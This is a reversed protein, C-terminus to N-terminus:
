AQNRKAIYAELAAIQEDKPLKQIDSLTLEKRSKAVEIIADIEAQLEAIKAKEEETLSYRKAGTVERAQTEIENLGERLRSLSVWCQGNSGELGKINVVEKGPGKSAQKNIKLQKGACFVADGKRKLVLM